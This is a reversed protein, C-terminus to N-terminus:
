DIYNYKKYYWKIKDRKNNNKKNHYNGKIVVILFINKKGNFKLNYKLEIMWLLNKTTLIKFFIKIEMKSKSKVKNNLWILLKKFISGYKPFYIWTLM